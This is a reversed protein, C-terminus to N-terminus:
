RPRRGKGKGKRPGRPSRPSVPPPGPHSDTPRKRTSRAGAPSSRSRPTPISGSWCGAGTTESSTSSRRSKTKFVKQGVQLLKLGYDGICQLVGLNQVFRADADKGGAESRTEKNAWAAYWEDGAARKFAEQVKALPHFENVGLTVLATVTHAYAGSRHPNPLRKTEAYEAALAEIEKDSLGFSRNKEAM